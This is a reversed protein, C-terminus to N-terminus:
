LHVLILLTLFAVLVALNTYRLWRFKRRLVAAAGGLGALAFLIGILLALWPKLDRNPSFLSFFLVSLGILTLYFFLWKPLGFRRVSVEQGGLARLIAADELLDAVAAVLATGRSVLGLISAGAFARTSELQGLAFFLLTYGVIFPLDLIQLWRLISRNAQGEKSDAPGVIREIDARSEALEAALSPKLDDLLRTGAPPKLKAGIVTMVVALVTLGCLSWLVWFLPGM